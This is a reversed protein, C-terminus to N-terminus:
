GGRVTTDSPESATVEQTKPLTLTFTSGNDLKSEATIDGGHLRIVERAIALGLGTGKITAVRADQARYFKDFIRPLDKPGIGIGNDSVTIQLQDSEERLVVRVQGKEPTYKLANGV